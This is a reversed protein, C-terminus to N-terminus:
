GKMTKGITTALFVETLMQWLSQWKPEFREDDKELSSHVVIKALERCAVIAEKGLPSDWREDYEKHGKWEGRPERNEEDYVHIKAIVRQQGVQVRTVHGEAYSDQLAHFAVGLHDSVFMPDYHGLQEKWVRRLNVAAQHAHDRIWLVSAEYAIEESQSAHRMFHHRQGSPIWHNRTFIDEVDLYVNSTATDRLFHRIWTLKPPLGDLAAKLAEESLHQHGWSNYAVLSEATRRSAPQRLSQGSTTRGPVTVGTGISM